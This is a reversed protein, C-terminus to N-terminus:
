RSRGSAALDVKLNKDAAAQVARAIKVRSVLAERSAAVPDLAAVRGTLGAIAIDPDPAFGLAAFRPPRGLVQNM